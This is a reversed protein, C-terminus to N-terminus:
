KIGELESECDLIPLQFRALPAQINYRRIRRNLDEIRAALQTRETQRREPSASTQSQRVVQKRLNDVEALLERRTEIWPLTFGHSRLLHFALQLEPPAYPNEEWQIPKGKGSLNKFEGREIAEGIRDEVWRM